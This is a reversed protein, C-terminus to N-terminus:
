GPGADAITAGDTEADPQADAQAADAQAADTQADTQADASSSAAADGADSESGTESTGSDAPPADREPRPPPRRASRSPTAPMGPYPVVSGSALITAPPTSRPRAESSQRPTVSCVTPAIARETPTRDRPPSTEAQAGKITTPRAVNGRARARAPSSARPSSPPWLPWPSSAVTCLPNEPVAIRARLPLAPPAHPPSVAPVMGLRAENM